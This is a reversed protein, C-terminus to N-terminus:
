ANSLETQPLPNCQDCPDNREAERVMNDQMLRVALLADFAVELGHWTKIETIERLIHERWHRGRDRYRMARCMHVFGESTKGVPHSLMTLAATAAHPRVIRRLKRRIRERWVTQAPQTAMWMRNVLCIDMFHGPINVHVKIRKLWSGM